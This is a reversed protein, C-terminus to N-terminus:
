KLSLLVTQKPLFHYNYVFLLTQNFYNILYLNVHFSYDLTSNVLVYVFFILYVLLCFSYFCLKNTLILCHLDLCLLGIMVLCCSSPIWDISQSLNHPNYYFFIVRVLIFLTYCWIIICFIAYFLCISINWSLLCSYFSIFKYAYCIFTCLTM